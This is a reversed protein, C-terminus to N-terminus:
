SRRDEHPEKWVEITFKDFRLARRPKKERQREDSSQEEIM